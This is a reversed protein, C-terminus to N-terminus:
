DCIIKCLQNVIENISMNTGDIEIADSAKRLPSIKRHMDEYDRKLLEDQCKRLNEETEDYMREKALRKAREQIDVIFYFKFDANPFETTGIDRGDIIVNKQSAVSHLEDSVKKRVIPMQALIAGIDGVVQSKLEKDTMMNSSFNYRELIVKIKDLSLAYNDANINKNLMLLSIQRFFIGSNIHLYNMREALLRAITSKGTCAGGDIAIIM